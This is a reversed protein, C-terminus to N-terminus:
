GPERVPPPGVGFGTFNAPNFGFLQNQATTLASFGNNFTSGFFQNQSSPSQGFGMFGSGFGNNFGNGFGFFVPGGISPIIDIPLGTTTGTAPLNFFNGLMGSVNQFTSNFASNVAPFFASTSTTPINSLANFLSM